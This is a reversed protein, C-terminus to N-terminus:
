CLVREVGVCAYSYNASDSGGLASLILNEENLAGYADLSGGLGKFLRNRMWENREQTSLCTFMKGATKTRPQSESMRMVDVFVVFSYTKVHLGYRLLSEVYVRLAKLHVWDTMLDGYNPRCWQLMDAQEEGCEWERVKLKKEEAEYQALLIEESDDATDVEDLESLSFLRLTFRNERCAHQLQNLYKKLIVISYVVYGEADVLLKRASKPVVKPVDNSSEKSVDKECGLSEYRSLFDKEQSSMVIVVVTQLYETEIFIDRLSAGHTTKMIEEEKLVSALPASLINASCEVSM